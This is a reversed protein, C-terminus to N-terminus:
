RAETKLLGRSHLPPPPGHVKALRTLCFHSWTLLNHTADGEGKSGGGKWKERAEEFLYRSLMELRGRERKVMLTVGDLELSFFAFAFFRLSPPKAAARAHADAQLRSM